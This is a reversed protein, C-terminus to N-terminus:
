GCTEGGPVEYSASPSVVTVPRVDGDLSEAADTLLAEDSAVVFWTDGILAWARCRADDVGTGLLRDINEFSGGQASAYSEDPDDLDGVPAREFIHVGVTGTRCSIGRVAAGGRIPANLQHIEEIGECDLERALREVSMSRDTTDEGGSSGDGDSCAAGLLLGVAAALGIWRVKAVREVIAGAM